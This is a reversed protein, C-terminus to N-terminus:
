LSSSTKEQPYDKKALERLLSVNEQETKRLYAIGEKEAQSVKHLLYIVVSVEVLLYLGLFYFLMMVSDQTVLNLMLVIWVLAILVHPMIVTM